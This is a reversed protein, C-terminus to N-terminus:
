VTSIPRVLEGGVLVMDGEVCPGLTELLHGISVRVACMEARYPSHASRSAVRGCGGPLDVMSRQKTMTEWVRADGGCAEVREPPVGSMGPSGAVGSGELPVHPALTHRPAATVDSPSADNPPPKGDPPRCSGEPAALGWPPQPRGGSRWPADRRQLPKKFMGVM